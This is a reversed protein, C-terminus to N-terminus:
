KEKHPTPETPVVNELKEEKTEKVEEKKPEEKPKDEKKVEAPKKEKIKTKSEEPKKIIEEKAKKEKAEQEHVREAHEDNSLSSNPNYKILNEESSKVIYSPINVVQDKISIHNHTIFQRAQKVTRSLGKQFIITQLRRGLLNKLNLSLIDELKSSPPILSLDSLKKILQESEKKSQETDKAILNKAQDHISKLKSEVKWIEKKNKLGYGQTIDKQEAIIEENWIMLPKRYKKRQKKPDGM